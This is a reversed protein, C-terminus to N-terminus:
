GTKSIKTQFAQLLRSFEEKDDTSNWDLEDLKLSIDAIMKKVDELLNNYQNLDISFLAEMLQGDYMEGALPEKYLHEVAIEVAVEVLFGQNLMRIIDLVAIDDYQKNYFEIYWMGLRDESNLDPSPLNYLKGMTKNTNM